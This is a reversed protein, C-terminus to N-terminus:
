VLSSAGSAAPSDHAGQSRIQEALLLLDFDEIRCRRDFYYVVIAIVGYASSISTALGSLLVGLVPISSWLLGLAGVPVQSILAAVIIIGFTRWWAGEVLDRSRRLASLGFRREVIMVPGILSWRTNWYVMLPFGVLFGLGFLLPFPMGALRGMGVIVGFVLGGILFMSYLLLYTGVFPLLISWASRYAREITVPRDLYIEAIATTLAAQFLPVAAILLLLTVIQFGKGLSLLVREPVWVIASIGILVVANDVLIRLSRDLIEAFSLPRINYAM